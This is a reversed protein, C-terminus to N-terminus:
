SWSEEPRFTYQHFVEYPQFFRDLFEGDSVDSLIPWATEPRLRTVQSKHEELAARKQELVDEVYVSCRFDRLGQLGVGSSLTQLFSKLAPRSAQLRFSVWPWCHWFWVPYEYVKVASGSRRLAARVIRNTALHDIHVDSFYPVFVEEPRHQLLLETVSEVARAELQALETERFNLFSVDQVSLGLVQAAAVAERSRIEKLQTPPIFRAHSLGGDCMFVLHVSAGARRKKIITGGCGLTEDDQHPAFVMASGLALADTEEHALKVLARKYLRSPRLRLSPTM